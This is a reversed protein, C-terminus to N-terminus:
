RSDAWGDDLVHLEDRRSQAHRPGDIERRVSSEEDGLARPTHPDHLEPGSAPKARIWPCGNRRARAAVALLTEKPDREIRAEGAVAEDVQIVAIGRRGAHRPGLEDAHAIRVVASRVL